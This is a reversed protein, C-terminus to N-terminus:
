YFVASALMAIAFANGTLEVELPMFAQFGSWRGLLVCSSGKTNINSWPENM